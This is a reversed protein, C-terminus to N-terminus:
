VRENNLHEGASELVRMATGIEANTAGRGSRYTTFRELGWGIGILLAIWWVAAIGASQWFESELAGDFHRGTVVMMVVVGPSVLAIVVAVAAIALCLVLVLALATAAADDGSSGVRSSSGRGNSSLTRGLQAKAAGELSSKPHRVTM